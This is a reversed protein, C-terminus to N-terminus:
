GNLASKNKEALTMLKEVIFVSLLSLSLSLSFFSLCLVRKVLTKKCSDFQNGLFPLRALSFQVIAMHIKTHVKEFDHNKEKSGPVPGGREHVVYARRGIDRRAPKQM